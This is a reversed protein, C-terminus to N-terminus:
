DFHSTDSVNHWYRTQSKKHQMLAAISIFLVTSAAANWEFGLIDFYLSFVHQEIELPKKMFSIASSSTCNNVNINASNINLSFIIFIQHFYCVKLSVLAHARACKQQEWATFWRLTFYTQSTSFQRNEIAFVAIITTAVLVVMFGKLFSKRVSFVNFAM